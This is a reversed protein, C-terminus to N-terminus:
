PDTLVKGCLDIQKGSLDLANYPTDNINDQDVEKQSDYIQCPCFDFHFPNKEPIKKEKKWNDQRREQNEDLGRPDKKVQFGDDAANM